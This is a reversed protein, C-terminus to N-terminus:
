FKFNKDNSFSTGFDGQLAAGLWAFYRQVPPDNLGLDSRIRAVSEETAAQGLIAQAFDGPLMNVAAFIVLSVVLLTLLGLGLRKALLVLIDSKM